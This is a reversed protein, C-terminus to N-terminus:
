ARGEAVKRRWKEAVADAITKKMEKKTLPTKRKTKIFGYLDLLSPVPQAVIKDADVSFSLKDFPKVKFHDRIAKPITVQGKQTITSVGYM